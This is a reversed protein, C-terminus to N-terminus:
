VRSRDERETARVRGTGVLITHFSERQHPRGIRGICRDAELRERVRPRRHAAHERCQGPLDDIRLRPISEAVHPRAVVRDLLEPEGRALNLVKGVHIARQAPQRADVRREDRALQGPRLRAQQAPDGRRLVFFGPQIERLAQGRPLERALHSGHIRPREFCGSPGFGVLVARLLPGRV